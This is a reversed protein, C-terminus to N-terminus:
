NNWNLATAIADIESMPITHCGVVFVDKTFERVEFRDLVQVGILTTFDGTAIGTQIAQWLRKAASVGIQVQQSTEIRQETSNIRLYSFGSPHYVRNVGDFERFKELTANAEKIANAAKRKNDREIDKNRTRLYETYNAADKIALVKQLDKPVKVGFIKKLRECKDAIVSLPNLYLEPKRANSLKSTLSEAQSKLRAFIADADNYSGLPVRLTDRHGFASSTVSQHGSTTNSYTDNNILVVVGDKKTQVYMALPFHHGYSYLTGREFFVSGSKKSATFRESDTLNAFTHIVGSISNPSNSRRM